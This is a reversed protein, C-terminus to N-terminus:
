VTTDKINQKITKIIGDITKYGSPQKSSRLVDNLPTKGTYNIYEQIVQYPNTLLQPDDYLKYKIGSALYALLIKKGLWQYLGNDGKDDSILNHEKLAPFLQKEITELYRNPKNVTPTNAKNFIVDKPKSIGSSSLANGCRRNLELMLPIGVILHNNDIAWEVFESTIIKDNGLFIRELSQHEPTISLYINISEDTTPKGRERTQTKLYNLGLIILLATNFHIERTELKIDNKDKLEKLLCDGMNKSSQSDTYKRVVSEGKKLNRVGLKRTFFDNM